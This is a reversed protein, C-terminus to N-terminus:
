DILLSVLLYLYLKRILVFHLHLSVHSIHPSTGIHQQRTTIVCPPRPM